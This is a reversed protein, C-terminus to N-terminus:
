QGLSIQEAVSCFFNTGTTFDFLTHVFFWSVKVKRSKDTKPICTYVAHPELAGMDIIM